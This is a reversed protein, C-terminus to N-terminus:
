WIRGALMTLRIFTVESKEKIEIEKELDELEEDDLFVRFLGDKFSELATDQAKQEDAKKDSFLLGFAVKGAMALASIEDESIPQAATEKQELRQNYNEVSRRVCSCILEELTAPQCDLEFEVADIQKIRKGLQKVNVLITVCM